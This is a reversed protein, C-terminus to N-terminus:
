CTRALGLLSSVQILYAGCTMCADMLLAQIMQVREEERWEQLVADDMVGPEANWDVKESITPLQPLKSVTRSHTPM